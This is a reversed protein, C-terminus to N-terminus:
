KKRVKIKAKPAGAKKLQKQLIKKDKKSQVYITLGKGKKDRSVVGSQANKTSTKGCRALCDKGLMNVSIAGEFEIIQLGTNKM